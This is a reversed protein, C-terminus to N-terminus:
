YDLEVAVPDAVIRTAFGSTCRSRTGLEENRTKQEKFLLLLSHISYIVTAFAIQSILVSLLLSFKESVVVALGFEKRGNDTTKDAVAIM